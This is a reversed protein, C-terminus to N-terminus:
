TFLVTPDFVRHQEHEFKPNGAWRLGIKGSPKHSRCPIYPASNVTLFSLYGSMGLVHSNELVLPYLNDLSRCQRLFLCSIINKGSSLLRM